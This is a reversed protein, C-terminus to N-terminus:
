GYLDQWVCCALMLGGGQPTSIALGDWVLSSHLRVNPIMDLERLCFKSSFVGYPNMKWIHCDALDRCIFVNALLSLLSEYESEEFQRLVRGFPVLLVSTSWFVGIPWWESFNLSLCFCLVWMCCDAVWFRVKNGEGVRFGM